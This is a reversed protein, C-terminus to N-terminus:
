RNKLQQHYIVTMRPLSSRSLSPGFQTRLLAQRERTKVEERGIKKKKEKEEEEELEEKKKKREEEEEEGRRGEKKIKRKSSFSIFSTIPLRGDSM